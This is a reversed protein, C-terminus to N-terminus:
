RALGYWPKVSGLSKLIYEIYYDWVRASHHGMVGSELSNVRYSVNRYGQVVPGRVAPVLTKGNVYFIPDLPEGIKTGVYEDNLNLLHGAEHILTRSSIQIPFAGSHPGFTNSGRQIYAAYEGESTKQGFVVRILHASISSNNKAVTLHFDLRVKQRRFKYAHKNWGINLIREWEQIKSQLEHEKIRTDDLIFAIRTVVGVSKDSIRVTNAMPAASAKQSFLFFLIVLFM